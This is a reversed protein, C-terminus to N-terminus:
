KASRNQCTKTPPSIQRGLPMEESQTSQNGVPARASPPPPRRHTLPTNFNRSRLPTEMRWGICARWGDKQEQRTSRELRLINAAGSALRNTDRYVNGAESDVQEQRDEAYAGFGLHGAKKGMRREHTKWSVVLGFGAPADPRVRNTFHMTRYYNQWDNENTKPGIGGQSHYGFKTLPAFQGASTIRGAFYTAYWQRRAPEVAGQYGFWHGNNMAASCWGWENYAGSEFDPNAAILGWRYGITHILDEDHLEWFLDTGVANHTKGIKEGLEGGVLPFSGHTTVSFAVGIKALRKQIDLLKDAYKNMQWKQWVDGYDNTIESSIQKRTRGKLGHGTTQKLYSDFAIYDAWTFAANIPIGNWRDSLFLHCVKQGKHKGTTFMEYLRDSAYDWFHQGSPFERWPDTYHNFSAATTFMRGASDSRKRDLEMFDHTLAWIKDDDGGWGQTDADTGLGFEDFNIFGPSCLMGMTEVPEHEIAPAKPDVIFFDFTSKISAGTSLVLTADIHVPGLDRLAPLPLKRTFEKMAKLTVTEHVAALQKGTLLHTATVTLQGRIGAPMQVGPWGFIEWESISCNVHVNKQDPTDKLPKPELNATSDLGLIHLRCERIRAPNFEDSHRANVYEANKSATLMKNDGLMEYRRPNSKDQHRHPTRGTICQGATWVQFPWKLSVSQEAASKGAWLGFSPFVGRVGGSSLALDNLGQTTPNQKWNNDVAEALPALNHLANRIRVTLQPTEGAAYVCRHIMAGGAMDIREAGPWALATPSAIIEDGLIRMEVADAIDVLQSTKALAKRRDTTVAAAEVWRYPMADGSVAISPDGLLPSRAQLDLDITKGASIEVPATASNMLAKELNRVKYAVIARAASKGRNTISIQLKGVQNPAISLSLDADSSKEMDPISVASLLSALFHALDSSALLTPDHLSGGFVLVRGPGFRSSILLPLQGDVDAKLLVNWDTNLIDKEYNEWQLRHEGSEVAAFPLHMEYYRSLRLNKISWAGDGTMGCGGHRYLNGNANTEKQGRISWLNVPLVREDLGDLDGAKEGLSVILTKGRRLFPEVQECLTRQDKQEGGLPTILCLVDVDDPIAPPASRRKSEPIVDFGATAAARDFKENTKESIVFLRPRTAASGHVAFFLIACCSACRSLFNANM